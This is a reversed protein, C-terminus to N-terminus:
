GCLRAGGRPLPARARAGRGRRSPRCRWSSGCRSTRSSSCAAASASWCRTSSRGRRPRRTPCTSATPSGTAHSHPMTAAASSRTVTARVRIRGRRGRSRKGLRAQAEAVGRLLDARASDDTPADLIVRYGDAAAQWDGAALQMDVELRTWAPHQEDIFHSAPLALRESLFRLAVMSPRAIGPRSPASTPRPTGIARSSSSRRPRRPAAGGPHARRHAARPCRGTRHCAFRNEDEADARTYVGHCTPSSSM